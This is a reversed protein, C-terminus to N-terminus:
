PPRGRGGAPLAPVLGPSLTAAARAAKLPMAPPSARAVSLPRSGCVVLHTVILHVKSLSALYRIRINSQNLLISRSESATGADDRELMARAHRLPRLSAM